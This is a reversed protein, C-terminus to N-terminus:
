AGGAHAFGLKGLRQSLGKNSSSRSITRISIVSYISFYEQIWAPPARGSVHAVLFAALQGLRHTFM